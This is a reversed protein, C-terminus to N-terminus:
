EGLRDRCWPDPEGAPVSRAVGPAWADAGDPTMQLAYIRYEVDQNLFDVHGDCYLVNAGGPHASSPLGAIPPDTNIGSPGNPASANQDWVFGFVVETAPSVNWEAPTSIATSLRESLLFTQAAGDKMKDTTISVKTWNPQSPTGQTHQRFFVGNAPWDPPYYKGTSSDYTGLLEATPPSTINGADQQGCNGVYSLLPGEANAETDSPCIFMGIRVSSSTGGRFQEWVDERGILPLIMVPWGAEYGVGAATQYGPVRNAYGCVGDRNLELQKIAQGLEKLNNSCETRRARARAALIAPTLMAVLMGIIAIVVLLEVLTFGRRNSPPLM